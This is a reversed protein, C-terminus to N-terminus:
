RARALQAAIEAVRVLGGAVGGGGLGRALGREGVPVHQRLSPRVVSPLASDPM